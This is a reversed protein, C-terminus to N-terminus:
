SCWKEAERVRDLIVESVLPHTGAAMTYWVLKGKKESPNRWPSQGQELRRQVVRESEGLLVPIDQRSHMGDSMFFPVVIMNRTKSLAYCEAIRPAEELFVGEVAAYIKLSRILQVQHEISKRSNEDRDTGHGAIILTTDQPDPSRPFPYQDVIEQARARLVKTMSHHTGIPKCYMRTQKALHQVRPFDAQGASKFGLDRPIVEESFYGESIFLPVIFVRSAAIQPLLDVLRPAQKWFAERV